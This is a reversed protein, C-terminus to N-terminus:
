MSFYQLFSCIWVTRRRPPLAGRCAMLAVDCSALLGPFGLMGTWDAVAQVVHRYDPWRSCARALPLAEVEGPKLELHVSVEKQWDTVLRPPLVPVNVTGSLVVAGVSRSRVADGSWFYSVLRDQAHPTNASQSMPDM